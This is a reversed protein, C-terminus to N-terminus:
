KKLRKGIDVWMFFVIPTLIYVACIPSYQFMIVIGTVILLLFWLPFRKNM